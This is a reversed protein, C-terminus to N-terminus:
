KFYHQSYTHQRVLLNGMRMATKFGNVSHRLLWIRWRLKPPFQDARVPSFRNVAKRIGYLRATCKQGHTNRAIDKAIRMCNKVALAKNQREPLLENESVFHYFEELLEIFGFMRDDMSNMISSQRQRYHYLCHPLLTLGNGHSLWKYVVAFDEYRRLQPIPEVLLERRFLRGHLYGYLRRDYVMTVAKSPSLMQLRSCIPDHVTEGVFENMYGCAVCDKGTQAVTNLLTACFQPEIWDDSDIFGVYEGRAMAIGMNCSDPKGSNKKHVVSIRSDSGAYQDCIDASGDTSGDDIIILEWHTYTQALVSEICQPLYPATNYVPVILSILPSTCPSLLSSLPSTRPAVNEDTYYGDFHRAQYDFGHFSDETLQHCTDAMWYLPTDRYMSAVLTFTSPAGILYDCESLLCLDQAPTGNPFFFNVHSLRKSFLQRNLAPDNSCVYVDIQRDPHLNAFQEITDIYQADDFYYRGCCWSYYDGRRIHVGLRLPHPSAPTRPHSPQMTAAVHSRVAPDFDFLSTIESRYKEFLDPFRVCWGTVLVNKCRLMTQQQERWEDNPINFNVTPILRLWAAAKAVLYVVINHYRTHAIRFDPYKHAFRMSLTRRGHERGWAYLQGYQFINNAMRGKDTVFIM